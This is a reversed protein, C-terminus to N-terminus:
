QTLDNYVFEYEIYISFFICHFFVLFDFKMGFVKRSNRLSTIIKILIQIIM